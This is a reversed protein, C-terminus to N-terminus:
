RHRIELITGPFDPATPVATGDGIGPGTATFVIGVTNASAGILTFDTTGITAIEYENGTTFTTATVDTADTFTFRIYPHYGSVTIAIIDSEVATTSSIEYWNGDTDTAGEVLITGSHQSMTIQFTLLDTDDTNLTSSVLPPTQGQPITLIESAVFAAMISDVIDIYGRAGANDDVYVPEYLAGDATQEVSFGVRGPAILDLEQETLVLKTQGVARNVIELPKELLLSEGDHSILRFTFELDAYTLLSATGTGTGAGTATFKTGVKFNTIAGVAVFDTTGTTEICYESGVVFSGATTPTDAITKRRLDVRKQDQNVFSILIRNDTGRHAILNKTYMQNYRKEFITPDTTDLLIVRHQQHYLFIKTTMM